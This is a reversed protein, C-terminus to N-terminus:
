YLPKRSHYTLRLARDTEPGIKLSDAPPFGPVWIIEGDVLSVVPLSKRESQPIHRDIFWDKLKKTGPAGLPRFRDGPRWARVEIPREPDSDFYAESHSDISGQALRERLTGDLRVGELAIQGGTPLLITEDVQILRGDFAVSKRTKIEREITVESETLSVFTAGVSLRYNPRKSYVANLLIEMGPASLSGILYHGSLWATIARRTIARPESQLEKRKLARARRFAEPLRAKAISKLAAADEELLERSRAAGVQVDHELAKMLNPIVEIRLSNRPIRTDENSSDHRWHIGCVNLAMRIDGARHHLIPRIHDPYGPFSNVPRPASLGESGAGRSLRILQTELIDDQQHGLVIAACGHKKAARRLFNLRLERAATETFAAENEPREELEFTCALAVAVEAMFAADRNSAEERWRHNYHGIVVNIDLEISWAWLLCLTFMSDPGGSCAVLVSDGTHDQLWKGVRAEIAEAGLRDRLAFAAAPWDINQDFPPM